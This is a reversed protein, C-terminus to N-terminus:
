TPGRVVEVVREARSFRLNERHPCRMQSRVVETVGVRDFVELLDLNERCM